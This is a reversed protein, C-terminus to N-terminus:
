APKPKNSLIWGRPLPKNLRIHYLESTPIHKQQDYILEFDMKWTCKDKDPDHTPRLKNWSVNPLTCQWNM